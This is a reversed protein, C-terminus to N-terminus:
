PIWAVRYYAAPDPASSDVYTHTGGPGMTISALVSWTILNTSRYLEYRSGNLGAFTVQIIHSTRTVRLM